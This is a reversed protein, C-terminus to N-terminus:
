VSFSSFTRAHAPFDFDRAVGVLFEFPKRCLDL